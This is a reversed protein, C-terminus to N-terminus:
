MLSVYKFFHSILYFIDNIDSIDNYLVISALPASVVLSM